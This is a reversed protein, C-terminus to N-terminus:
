LEGYEMELSADDSDSAEKVAASAWRATDIYRALSAVTPSDFLHRVSLEVNFADSIRAMAKTALLSHGGLEFFHDFAGVQDLQFLDQWVEAVRIESENRPAVYETRLLQRAAELTPLAAVDVKGNVTLPIEDLRVFVNPVTEAILRESLFSRLESSEIIEDAVYCAMLVGHDDKDTVVTATCSTVSPHQNLHSTIENLSIRHGHHKVEDDQRGVFELLGEPLRKGLDGTRYMPRGPVFPNDVFREATLDNRGLYGRAVGAGSVYLEGLMTKPVPQLRDDLLYIQTNAAPVGIPVFARTDAESDFRHLMCGVTAETPGYENLIEVQSGFAQQIRRALETELAEGGVIFRRVPPPSSTDAILALHSPTLKIINSRGDRIVQTVAPVGLQDRYILLRHGTALPTFLSTVTLDFALSSHLSFVLDDDRVYVDRCWAIYNMLSSHEIQVGKPKGTSGSTYIVYALDGPDAAREPNTTECRQLQESESDICVPQYQETELGQFRDLLRRQTLVIKIGADELVHQLRLPPHAPDCPVYAAGAKLVALVGVVTEVSHELYLGVFTGRGVGLELLYHALKNSSTNLEAFSLEHGEFEVATQELNARVQQEFLDIITLERPYSVETANFAVLSESREEKSLLSVNDVQQDPDTLLSELAAHFQNAIAVATGRQFLQANFDICCVFRAEEKRLRFTLDHNTDAFLSTDHISDLCIGVDFLPGRNSQRDIELDALLKSLPYKQHQYVGVLQERVGKLLRRCDMDPEIRVRIAVLENLLATEAHQGHITGGVVIDNQRNHRHLLIGVAATFIAFALTDNGQTVACLRDFLCEDTPLECSEKAAHTAKPRRFDTPFGSQVLEGGLQELWYERDTSSTTSDTQSTSRQTM